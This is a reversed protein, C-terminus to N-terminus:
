GSSARLTMALRTTAPPVMMLGIVETTTAWVNGVLLMDSLAVEDWVNDVTDQEMFM